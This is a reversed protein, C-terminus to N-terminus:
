WKYFPISVSYVTNNHDSDLSGREDVGPVLYHAQGKVTDYGSAPINGVSVCGALSGAMVCFIILLKKM